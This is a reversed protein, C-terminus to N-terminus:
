VPRTGVACHFPSAIFFTGASKAAAAARQWETMEGATLTAVIQSEFGALRALEIEPTVAVLQPFFTTDILGAAHFRRYVSADASGVQAASGVYGARDVKVIWAPSTT